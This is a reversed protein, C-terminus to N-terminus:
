QGKYISSFRCAKILSITLVLASLSGVSLLTIMKRWKIEKSVKVAEPPVAIWIVASVIAFISIVEKSM